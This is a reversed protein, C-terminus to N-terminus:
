SEMSCAQVPEISAARSAPGAAAALVAALMLSAVLLMEGPAMVWAIRGNSLFVDFGPLWSLNVASLLALAGIGIAVGLASTGVALIGAELLFLRIVMPRQMGIARMTGIEKTREYVIVRYTNVVGLVVTGMLLCALALLLITMVEVVQNIQAIHAGLGILSYKVGAWNSRDHIAFMDAKAAALPFMPLKKELAAQIRRLPFMLRGNGQYYGGVYTTSVPDLRTVARLFDIDMYSTYFGFLSSDRYIGRLVLTASNRQGTTTDILLLIDDGVRAGLMKAVPASILVGNSGRMGEPGGAVYNFSRFNREERDFAAGMVMRMHVSNGGFSLFVNSRYDIRLAARVPKGPLAELADVVERPNDVSLAGNKTSGFVSFDGGYYIKAKEELSMRMGGLAGYVITIIACGFAIAVGLVRYRAKQRLLNRLAIRLTSNM